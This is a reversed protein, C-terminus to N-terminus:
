SAAIGRLLPKVLNQSKVRIIGRYPMASLVVCGRSHPEAICSSLASLKIQQIM